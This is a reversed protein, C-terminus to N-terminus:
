KPLRFDIDDDQEPLTNKGSKFSTNKGDSLTKELESLAKSKTKSLLKDLKGDFAGLELLLNEYIAYKIPNEARKAM